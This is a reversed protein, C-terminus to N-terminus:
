KAAVIDITRIDPDADLLPLIALGVAMVFTREGPASNEPLV